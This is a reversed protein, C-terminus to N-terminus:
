WLIKKQGCFFLFLAYRWMERCRYLREHHLLVLWSQELADDSACRHRFHFPVTPLFLQFRFLTSLNREIRFSPLRFQAYQLRGLLVLRYIAYPGHVFESAGFTSRIQHDTVHHPHAFRFNQPRWLDGSGQWGQDGLKSLRQGQGSIELAPGCRFHFPVAVSGLNYWRVLTHNLNVFIRCLQVNRLHRLLISPLVLDSHFIRDTLRSARARHRHLFSLVFHVLHFCWSKDLRQLRLDYGLSLDHDHFCTDIGIRCGGELPEVISTRQLYGLKRKREIFKKPIRM